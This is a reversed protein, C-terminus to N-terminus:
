GLSLSRGPGLCCEELLDWRKVAMETIHEKLPPIPAPALLLSPPSVPVHAQAEEKDQNGLFEVLHEDVVEKLRPVLSDMDANGPVKTASALLERGWILGAQECLEVM